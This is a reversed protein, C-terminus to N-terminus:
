DLSATQESGGHRVADMDAQRATRWTETGPTEPQARPQCKLTRTEDHPSYVGLPSSLELTEPPLSEFGRPIHLPYM